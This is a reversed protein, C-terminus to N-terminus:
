SFYVELARILTKINLSPYFGASNICNVEVIKWGEYSLCIDMVFAREVNYIELM